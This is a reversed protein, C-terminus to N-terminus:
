PKQSAHYFFKYKEDYSASEEFQFRRSQITKINAHIQTQVIRM